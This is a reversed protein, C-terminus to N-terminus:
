FRDPNKVVRGSRTVVKSEVKSIEKEDPDIMEIQDNMPEIEAEDFHHNVDTTEAQYCANEDKNSNGDSLIQAEEKDM